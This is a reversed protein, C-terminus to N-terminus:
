LLESTGLAGTADPDSIMADDVLNQGLRVDDLNVAVCAADLHVAAATLKSPPHAAM